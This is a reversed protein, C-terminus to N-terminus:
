DRYKQRPCGDMFETIDRLAQRSEPLWGLLMWAHFMSPYERYCLPHNEVHAKDRLARADPLLIDDTGTLLCLPPLGELSGNIPSLQPIRPDSGGAWIKGAERAGRIALLPDRKEIEATQPHSVTLDLWPSLMVVGGPQPLGVDRLMQAFALALGGGSSDGMFVINQAANNELLKRYANALFVFAEECTYKPALGYLPVTLQCPLSCMLRSLFNWHLRVIPAVYAGGHLYFVHQFPAHNHPEVHYVPRDGFQCTKVRYRATLDRPPLAEKKIASHYVLNRVGLETGFIWKLCSARIAAKVIASQMSM